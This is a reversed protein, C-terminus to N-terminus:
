ADPGVFRGVVITDVLNYIQQFINGLLMPLAFLLIKKTPKGTTMDEIM